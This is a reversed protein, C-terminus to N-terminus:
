RTEGSFIRTILKKFRPDDRLPDLRHDVLIWGLDNSDFPAHDEYSKELLRISEDKNGFSSQAVAMSYAPVYQRDSLAKLKDWLQQAEEKRGALFYAGALQALSIADEHLSNNKEYEIIAEQLQGNHELV